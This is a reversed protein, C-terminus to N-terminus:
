RSMPLAAKRVVQYEADVVRDRRQAPTRKRSSLLKWAVGTLIMAAGVFVGVFVLVALIALGLLGVVVRVLPNRPKRPEFLNRLNGFQFYRTQM